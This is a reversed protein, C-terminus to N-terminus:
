NPRVAVDGLFRVRRPPLADDMFYREPWANRATSTLPSSGGVEVNRVYREVLQAVGGFPVILKGGSPARAGYARTLLATRQRLRVPRARGSNVTRSRHSGRSAARQTLPPDLTAGRGNAVMSTSRRCPDERNISARGLGPGNLSSSATDHQLAALHTATPRRPGCASRPPVSRGPRGIGAGDLWTVVPM